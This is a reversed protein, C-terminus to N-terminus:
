CVTLLQTGPAVPQDGAILGRGLPTTGARLLTDPCLLEALGAFQTELSSSSSSGAPMSCAPQCRRQQRSSRARHAQLWKHPSCSSAASSSRRTYAASSPLLHQPGLFQM